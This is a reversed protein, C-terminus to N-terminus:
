KILMMKGTRQFAPTVLRYFYLGNGVAHDQEDTGDWTLTHYGAKIDDSAQLLTRVRQGIVDYIILSAPTDHALAFEIQTSPNFPNPYAQALAFQLPVVNTGALAMVRRIDDARNAVYAEHLVFSADGTRQRDLMRFSLEALLGGGDVPHGQSL